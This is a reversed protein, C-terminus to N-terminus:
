NPLTTLPRYLSLSPRSVILRANAAYLELRVEFRYLDTQDFFIFYM